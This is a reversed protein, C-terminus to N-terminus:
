RSKSHRLVLYEGRSRPHDQELSNVLYQLSTNGALAPIIRDSYQARRPHVLIGRSLPSSGRQKLRDHSVIGYEGRSRPHDTANGYLDLPGSTNGALAPIIGSAVRKSSSSMPIGRSLPSSGPISGMSTRSPSYEGRSRPHDRCSGCCTEPWCTNGALAPIIGQSVMGDRILRHIGRSLPSSGFRNEKERNSAGYEGRSRPHDKPRQKM